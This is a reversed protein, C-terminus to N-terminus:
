VAPFSSFLFMKEGCSKTHASVSRVISVSCGANVKLSLVTRAGRGRTSIKGSWVLLPLLPSKVQNTYEGEEQVSDCVGTFYDRNWHWCRM